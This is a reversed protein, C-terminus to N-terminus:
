GMEGMGIEEFSFVCSGFKLLIRAATGM